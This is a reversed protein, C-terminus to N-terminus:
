GSALESLFHRSTCRPGEAKSAPTCAGGDTRRFRLSSNRARVRRFAEAAERRRNSPLFGSTGVGGSCQRRATVDFSFKSIMTNLLFHNKRDAEGKTGNFLHRPTAEAHPPSSSAAAMGLGHPIPGESSDEFTLRQEQGDACTRSTYTRHQGDRPADYRQGSETRRAFSSALLLFLGRRGSRGTEWDPRALDPALSPCRCRDSVRANRTQRRFCRGALSLTMYCKKLSLSPHGSRVSRGNM